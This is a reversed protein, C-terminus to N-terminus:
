RSLFPLVKVLVPMRIVLIRLLITILLMKLSTCSCKIALRLASINKIIIFNKITISLFRPEYINQIRM